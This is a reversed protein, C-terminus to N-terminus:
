GREAQIPAGQMGPRESDEADAVQRAVSQVHQRIAERHEPINMICDGRCDVRLAECHRRWLDDLAHERVNGLAYPIFPCPTVEGQPSVFLVAKASVSCPTRPTPIEFHVFTAEQFERARAKEEATLLNEFAGDWHGAATALIVYVSLVGLERGLEIIKELGTTVSRKSAYTNIQCLIGFDQLAKIGALAKAHAGPVGRLRDHVAADADDISVAGQTLGARKLQRVRERDLLLGNTNLRTLLGADHAHRVLEVIDGRLLPEGGSFTVQLVGLRKAQDIVAKVEETTLENRHDRESARACCHVCRCQCRYTPSITIFRPVPQGFMKRRLHALLVGWARLSGNSGYLRLARYAINVMAKVGALGNFPRM